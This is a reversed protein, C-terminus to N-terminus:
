LNENVPTLGIKKGKILKYPNIGLLFLLIYGIVIWFFEKLRKFLLFVLANTQADSIGSLNFLIIIAVDQPGVTGPIFFFIMRVFSTLSEIVIIQFINVDVKILKLIVFSELSMLFWTLFFFAVTSCLEKKHSKSFHFITENIKIASPTMRYIFNNVPQLRIKNFLSIIRLLLKKRYLM